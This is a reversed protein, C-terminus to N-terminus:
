SENRKRKCAISACRLELKGKWRGEATRVRMTWWPGLMASQRQKQYPNIDKDVTLCKRRADSGSFCAMSLRFVGKETYVRMFFCHGASGRHMEGAACQHGKQHTTHHMKFLTDSERQLQLFPTTDDLGMQKAQRSTKLWHSLMQYAKSDKDLDTFGELSNCSGNSLARKRSGTRGPGKPVGMGLPVVVYEPGLPVGEPQAAHGSVLFDSFSAGDFCFGELPSLPPGGPEKASGMVRMNRNPSFVGLDIAKKCEMALAAECVEGRALIDAAYQALMKGSSVWDELLITPFHIHASLKTGMGDKFRFPRSGNLVCVRQPINKRECIRELGRYVADIVPQVMEKVRALGLDELIEGHVEHEFDVMFRHRGLDMARRQVNTIIKECIFSKEGNEKVYQSLDSQSTCTFSVFAGERKVAGV